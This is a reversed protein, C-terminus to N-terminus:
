RKAIKKIFVNWKSSERTTLKAPLTLHVPTQRGNSLRDNILKVALRGMQLSNPNVSSLSPVLYAAISSDNYSVVKLDQPIRLQQQSIARYAGVALQDSAILVAQPRNTILDNMANFGDGPLWGRESLMPTLQHDRMWSRYAKVRIDQYSDNSPGTTTMPMIKGGIFAIKKIGRAFLQDLVIRTEEFYSNRIIDFDPLYRYDDILVIHPNASALQQYFERTFVGAVIIGDYQRASAFSFGAQPFRIFDKVQVNTASAEQIIGDHVKAFYPDHAEAELSHTTIVLLQRQRTPQSVRRNNQPHYDFEQATKIIKERTQKSVAFQPDGKLVRSVTAPSFGAEKAIKRIGVM